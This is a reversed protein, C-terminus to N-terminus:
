EPCAGGNVAWENMKKVFEDFPMPPVTRGNGPAWAWHVRPDTEIHKIADKPTKRGGNRLPDKLQSCLQAPTVGTFVMKNDAPPMRWDPAGPPMGEGDTNKDQHCVACFLPDSGKGDPGRVIDNDHVRSDNGQLPTNGGPHCNACRASFFVKVADNFAARAKKSDNATPLSEAALISAEVRDLKGFRTSWAYGAALIVVTAIVLLKSTRIVM